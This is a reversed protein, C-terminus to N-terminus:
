RAIRLTLPATLRVSIPTGAPLRVEKGRTALVVGTGGAGGIVAGKAAGGGGGLIGGIIAGGVAAGGIKATDKKKTGPAERAVTSTRITASGDPGPPDIRTFRFAIRARGKVKASRKVDSVHGSVSTGAALARVGGVTIARTLMARVADEVNSNDSSVSTKLELPLLTGAPITVERYESVRPSPDPDNRGAVRGPEPTVPEADAAEPASPGPKVDGGTGSAPADSPNVYKAADVPVAAVLSLAKIDSRRVTQTGGDALQLVVDEAKVEVLRGAVTVGDQKKVSIESGAPIDFGAKKDAKDACAGVALVLALGIFIQKM